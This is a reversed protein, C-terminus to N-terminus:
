EENDNTRPLIKKVIMKRGYKYRKRQFQKIIDSKQFSLFIVDMTWAAQEEFMDPPIWENMEGIIIRNGVKQPAGLRRNMEWVEINGEIIRKSVKQSFSSNVLIATSAEICTSVELTHAKM